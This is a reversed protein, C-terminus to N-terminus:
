VGKARTPNTRCRDPWAREQAKTGEVPRGMARPAGVGLSRRCGGAVSRAGAALASGPRCRGLRSAHTPQAAPGTQPGPPPALSAAADPGPVPSRFARYGRLHLHYLPPSPAEPSMEPSALFHAAVGARDSALYFFTHNEPTARFPHPPHPFSFLILIETFYASKLIAWQRYGCVRGCLYRGYLYMPIPWEPAPLDQMLASQALGSEKVM